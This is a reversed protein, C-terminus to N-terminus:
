ARGRREVCVNAALRECATGAPPANAWYVVVTAEEPDSVQIAPLLAYAAYNRVEHQEFADSVVFFRDDPNVSRRIGDWVASDFGLAQEIQNEREAASLPGYEERADGMREIAVYANWVATLLIAAAVVAVGARARRAGGLRELGERVRAFM